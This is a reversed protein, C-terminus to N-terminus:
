HLLTQILIFKLIRIKFNESVWEEYIGNQAFQWMMGNEIASIDPFYRGLTWRQQKLQEYSMTFPDDYTNNNPETVPKVVSPESPDEFGLKSAFIV